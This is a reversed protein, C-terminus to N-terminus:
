FQFYIFEQEDTFGTFLILFILLYYTGWRLPRAYREMVEDFREEGDTLHIAFMFGVMLLLAVLGEPSLSMTGALEAFSMSGSLQAALGKPMSVIIQIASSLSEARFFVWAVNVITFTVAIGAWRPIRYRSVEGLFKEVVLILGHIAGWVIFTWAAGHWIGSLVFVILINRSQKWQGERGGGLPLYVYDRFWTSLSIHWRRWFATISEAGYPKNFNNMLDFGLIRACGIAIDSYASFDCFIQFAFFVTALILPLGNLEASAGYVTNVAIGLNDAIVMKKFFGWLILRLGTSARDADFRKIQRFQPLLRTSREIPGAVLQPFFSVYLALIGFHREPPRYGRYVDIVYSLAQFTYFSIGVPLLVNFLSFANEQDDSFVILNLNQVLFDLYKYFILLSLTLGVGCIMVAKRRRERERAGYILLGSVYAVLTVFLILAGYRIDWSMYFVYSALLLFAWRFKHPLM